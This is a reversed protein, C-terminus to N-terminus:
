LSGTAKALKFGAWIGAIGGVTSWFTYAMLGGDWIAPIVGGIFSGVFMGMWILGKSGSMGKTYRAVGSRKM